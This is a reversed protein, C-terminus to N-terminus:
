GLLGLWCLVGDDGLAVSDVSFDVLELCDARVPANPLEIAILIM